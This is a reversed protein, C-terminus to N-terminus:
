GDANLGYHRALIFLLAGIVFEGMDRFKIFKGQKHHRLIQIHERIAGIGSCFLILVWAEATPIFAYCLAGGCIIHGLTNLLEKKM